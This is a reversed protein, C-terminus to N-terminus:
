HPGSTEGHVGTHTHNKLSIGGAVIDGNATINGTVSVSGTVSLDGDIIITGGKITVIGGDHRLYATGDRDLDIRFLGAGTQKPLNKDSYFRGIVVGAETGNSLHIVLVQDGPEPMFYRSSLMPLKATVSSDRDAYTVAVLGKALDVASVKGIRIIEKSM